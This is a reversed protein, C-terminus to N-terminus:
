CCMVAAALLMAETTSQLGSMWCLCVFGGQEIPNKTQKNTKKWSFYDPLSSPPSLQQQQQQRSPDPLPPEPACPSSLLASVCCSPVHPHLVFRSSPSPCCTFFSYAYSISILFILTLLAFPLPFLLSVESPSLCTSSDFRSLLLQSMPVPPALPTFCLAARCLPLLLVFLLFLSTLPFLQSRKEVPLFALSSISFPSFFLSHKNEVVATLCQTSWPAGSM